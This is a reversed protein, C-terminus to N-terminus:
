LMQEAPDYKPGNRVAKRTIDLFVRRNAGNIGQVHKTPVTVKRGPLWKRTAVVLRPVRRPGADVLVDAVHGIAGDIAQVCHGILQKASRLRSNDAAGSATHPRTRGARHSLVQGVDPQSCRAVQEKSLRLRLRREHPEVSAVGLAPIVCSRRWFLMGKEVVLYRVGWNEIDIYFDEVLGVRADTAAVQYRRLRKVSSLM